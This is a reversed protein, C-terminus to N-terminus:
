RRLLWRKLLSNAFPVFSDPDMENINSVSNGDFIGEYVLWSGTKRWATKVVANHYQSNENIVTLSKVKWTNAIDM